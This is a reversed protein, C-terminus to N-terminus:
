CLLLHAVLPLELQQGKSLLSVMKILTLCLCQLPLQLLGTAQRQQMRKRALNFLNGGGNKGSMLKRKATRKMIALCRATNANSPNGNMSM